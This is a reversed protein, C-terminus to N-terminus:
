KEPAFVVLYRIRDYIRTFGNVEDFKGRLPKSNFLPKTM